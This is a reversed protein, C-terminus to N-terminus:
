IHILSLTVSEDGDRAEALVVPESDDFFIMASIPVPSTEAFALVASVDQSPDNKVSSIADGLVKDMADVAEQRAILASSGGIIGGGVVFVAGVLLALQTRLKM